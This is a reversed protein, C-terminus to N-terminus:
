SLDEWKEAVKPDPEILEAENTMAAAAEEFNAFWGAGVAASIGAGLASAENSLSKQAPLQTADAIMKMWLSSQAGGGIVNIKRLEVGESSMKKLARASELTLAELSARYLHAQTHHTRLGLFAGFAQPDWHPDMCGSLHTQVLVGESGIDIKSAEAELRAFTEPTREGSGLCELFWNVFFAGARQVAELFYGQGTPSILTRWFNSLRLDESSAGAIIATGLNLYARGGAIANVGLGACQGDGGGGFIKLKSPLNFEEAIEKTISGLEKGPCLAEPFQNTKVGVQDLLTSSWRKQEIDFAAFPDASTWSTKATGTLRYVLYGQVDLIRHTRKLIEPKNKSLWKLRYLVPTPDIPKGSIKHIQEGGLVECLSRVENAAREDLWVMADHLSTGDEDLFAVTERQNSISLGEVRKPDIKEIAQGLAIKFSDWWDSPDQEAHGPEPMKMNILARGESIPQGREDWVIAKTSQTSSDVGIVYRETM